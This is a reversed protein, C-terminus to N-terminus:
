VLVSRAAVKDLARSLELMAFLAHQVGPAVLNGLLARRVVQLGPGVSNAEQARRAAPGDLRITTPGAEVTRVHLARRASSAKPARPVGLTLHEAHARYPLAQTAALDARLAPAPAQGLSNARFTFARRNSKV